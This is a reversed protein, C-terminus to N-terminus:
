EWGPIMAKFKKIEKYADADVLVLRISPHYKAMRKRATKGQPYDWGKVEVYYDPNEADRSTEWIAFDPKYSTVGRRIKDFWFTRFEYKWELIQGHDKLWVCYRAYNAEMASRLYLNDLDARRGAKSRAPPDAHAAQWALAEAATTPLGTDDM